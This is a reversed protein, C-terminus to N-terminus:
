DSVAGELIAKVEGVIKGAMEKNMDTELFMFDVWLGDDFLRAQASVEPGLDFSSLFAHLGRVKIEGYETELPVAGSYNLATAGMRMSKTRVLMKILSESMMSALFKDGQKFAHYIKDHLARSLDWLDMEGSVDVTFRLMSIYNALPEPHTSPVTYPRLDAFTFTRMPLDDGGYLQRNTALLLSANLLSNMTIKELRCRKSLLDILVDPLILTLPYGRGGLQIPATRKGRMRWRYQIEDAIQRFAYKTLKILGQPGQFAPPFKTEVPPLVELTPLHTPEAERAAMACVHLLEDLLKMGSAADMVSHHFTLFLDAYESNYIYIARFLGNEPNLRTNMEQEVVDLWDITEQREIVKLSVSPHSLREFRGAKIRAQMLPQRIQLVELAHQIVGPLPPSELRLVSVVNFPAHQDSLYLAREFIGL